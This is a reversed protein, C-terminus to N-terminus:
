SVFEGYYGPKCICEGKQPICIKNNKCNCKSFDELHCFKGKWGMTCKCSGDVNNCIGNNM